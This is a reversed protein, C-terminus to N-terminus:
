SQVTQKPAETRATFRAAGVVERIAQIVLDPHDLHIWHGSNRAVLQQGRSSRRALDRQWDIYPLVHHDGSLVVLPLDRLSRVAAAQAASVPLAAVYQRLSLFNRPQSWLGRVVPLTSAPLKHIEGVIRQLASTVAPGFASAAAWALGPSGRAERTLCLRALGFRALWSAICAYRLGVKIVRLQEPTPAEWEAPHIPDVLVMGAVDDRFLNAFALNVYGGFSHGV